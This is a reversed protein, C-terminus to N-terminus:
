RKKQWKKEEKNVKNINYYNRLPFYSVKVTKDKF